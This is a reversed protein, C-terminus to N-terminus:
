PQIVGKARLTKFIKTVTKGSVNKLRRFLNFQLRQLARPKMWEHFTLNDRYAHRAFYRKLADLEDVDFWVESNEDWDLEPGKSKSKAAPQAIVSKRKEARIYPKLIPEARLLVTDGLVKIFESPKEGHLLYVQDRGRTMAVYLRLADRWVEDHPVGTEPFSDADCGLILVLRFEFGKLDSITGVVVEEPYLICDGSLSRAGLDAPRQLLIESVPFNRPAATAICVTWPETKNEQTCELAIEWAKSIQDDTKIVIPPNTERQALEPDLVEVEEEQAKAMAGYHNALRSAALLVQKSNRYNKLISETIAPGQVLHADELSQRKVLIKQASDGALFLADPETIPVIRRFLQLDLTSFDQFEDVLLCRFRLERPLQVMEFHLPMLAQTLGLDDIMGGAVLWEEWYLLLRLVDQRM